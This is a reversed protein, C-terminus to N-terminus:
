KLAIVITNSKHHYTNVGLNKQCHLYANHMEGKILKSVDGNFSGRLGNAKFANIKVIKDSLYTIQGLTLM